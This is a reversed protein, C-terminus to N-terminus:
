LYRQKQKQKQRRRDTKREKWRERQILMKRNYREISQYIVMLRDWPCGLCSSGDFTDKNRNRNRDGEIQREKKGDRERQIIM